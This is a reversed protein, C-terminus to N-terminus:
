QWVIFERGDQLFIWLLGGDVAIVNDIDKRDIELISGDVNRLKMACVELSVGMNAGYCLDVM